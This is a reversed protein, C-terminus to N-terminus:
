GHAGGTGAIESALKAIDYSAAPAKIARISEKMKVMKAPNSILDDLLGKLDDFKEIKFAAGHSIIFDSNRTEQGPIPSIVIIPLEKILSETVTIGGSKSILVDSVAMFDYVNDVFGMVKIKAKTTDKIATIKAILAENHGCIVIAQVPKSIGAIVKVISEIPGVGFGGGIVLVTFIDKELGFEKQLKEKDSMKSFVPEAPIGIVKIRDNDIGWGLLDNKADQNSVVYTDVMKSVWWSHLRYDTVVTLLHSSLVGRKKMDSIVETAFFHTSIIVDPKEDLLYKMLGASNLWNNLRRIPAVFINVLKNDTLYYMLGWIHSLKNVALLYIQLYSRKFSPPSYDLSDILIVETDALALEDFAKKIAIAAKKHGIGATAYTILIKKV